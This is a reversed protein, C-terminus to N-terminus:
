CEHYVGTIFQNYFLRWMHFSKQKTIIFRTKAILIIQTIVINFKSYFSYKTLLHFKDRHFVKKGSHLVLNDWHLEIKDRLLKIKDAHLEKKGRHLLIKVRQLNERGPNFRIEVRHLKLIDSRLKEKGSLSLLKGPQLKTKGWHVILKEWHFREEERQLGDKCSLLKNCSKLLSYHVSRLMEKGVILIEINKCPSFRKSYLSKLPALIQGIAPPIIGICATFLGRIVSNGFAHM